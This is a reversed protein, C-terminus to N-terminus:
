KSQYQKIQPDDTLLTIKESKAQAVLMRDFPDKHIHPLEQFSIIHEMKIPLTEIRPQSFLKSLPIKLRIKKLSLKIGMEWASAISVYIDNNPNSILNKTEKKLRPNNEVWWIFIHTDLLYKM